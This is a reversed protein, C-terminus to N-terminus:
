PDLAHLEPHLSNLTSPCSKTRQRTSSSSPRYPMPGQTEGSTSAQDLFKEQFSGNRSSPLRVPVSAPAYVPASLTEELGEPPLIVENIKSLFITHQIVTPKGEVMKKLLRLSEWPGRLDDWGTVTKFKLGFYCWSNCCIGQPSQGADFIRPKPQLNLTLTNV